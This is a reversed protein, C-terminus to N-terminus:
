DLLSFVQGPYILDPNKILHDNKKYIEMYLIGRGYIRRAIRWLSNGPQVTIAEAFLKDLLDKAEQKFPSEIRSLVAGSSDVEDLRLTYIGPTIVGLDIRWSGDDAPKIKSRLVNDLYIFVAMDSRCRGYLVANGDSSYKIRDLSVQDVKIPASIQKLLLDDDKTEIISVANTQGESVTKIDAEQVLGPLVFFSNASVVWPPESIVGDDDVIEKKKMDRTLLKLEQANESSSVQGIIVFGGDENTKSAGVVKDGIRAEVATDPDTKGAIVTIGSEDIRLIDVTTQGNKKKEDLGEDRGLNDIKETVEANKLSEVETENTSTENTNNMTQTNQDTEIVDENPKESSVSLDKIKKELVIASSLEGKDTKENVEDKLPNSSSDSLLEGKDIKENVEDKLTNSSSDSEIGEVSDMSSTNIEPDENKSVTTKNTDIESTDAAPTETQTNKEVPDKEDVAQHVVIYIAASLFGVLLLLAGPWGLKILIKNM